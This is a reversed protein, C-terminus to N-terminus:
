KNLVMTADTRGLFAVIDEWEHFTRFRTRYNQSVESDLSSLASNEGYGIVWGLKRHAFYAHSDILEKGFVPFDEVERMDLIVHVPAQGIDFSKIVSLNVQHLQTLSIKGSLKIELLRKPIHWQFQYPM